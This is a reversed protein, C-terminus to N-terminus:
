YLTTTDILDDIEVNKKTAEDVLREIEKIDHTHDLLANYNPERNTELYKELKEIEFVGLEDYFIFKPITMIYM